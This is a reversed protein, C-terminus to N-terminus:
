PSQLQSSGRAITELTIALPDDRHRDRWSVLDPSLEFPGTWFLWGWWTTPHILKIGNARLRWFEAAISDPADPWDIKPWREVLERERGSSLPQLASGNVQLRALREALHASKPVARGGIRLRDAGLTALSSGDPGIRFGLVPGDHARVRSLEILTASNWFSIDGSAEAIGIVSGDPTVGIGSAQFSVPVSGHLDGSSGAEPALEISRLQAAGAVYLRKGDVSFAVHQPFGKLYDPLTRVKGSDPDVIAVSGEDDSLAIERRSATIALSAVAHQQWTALPVARDASVDHRFVLTGGGPLADSPAVAVAYTLQKGATDYLMPGLVVANPAAVATERVLAGTSTDCIVVRLSTLAAGESSVVAALLAMSQGDPAVAAGGIVAMGPSGPRREVIVNARNGEERAARLVQVPQRLRRGESIPNWAQGNVCALRRPAFDGELSMTPGEQRLLALRGDSAFDMAVFPLSERHRESIAWVRVAGFLWRGAPAANGIPIGAGAALRRGDPAFAIRLVGAQVGTEGVRPRAIVQRSVSETLAVTGDYAGSALLVGDRSWEVSAVASTHPRLQVQPQAEEGVRWLYVTGDFSGFALVKGTPDFSPRFTNYPYTGQPRALRYVKGSDPDDVEWTRIEGNISTAAALRGDWSLAVGAAGPGQWSDGAVSVARPKLALQDFMRVGRDTGVIMRHAARDLALSLFHPEGDAPVLRWAEVGVANPLPVSLIESAGTPQWIGNWAADAPARRLVLLRTGDETAALDVVPLNAPPVILRESADDGDIIVVSGDFRGVAIAGTGPLFTFAWAGSPGSPAITRRFTTSPKTTALVQATVQPTVAVRRAEALLRASGVEDGAARQSAAALAHANALEVKASALGERASSAARAASVNGDVALAALVTMGFFLTVAVTGGTLLLRNRRRQEERYILHLLNDPVDYLAALLKVVARDLADTLGLARLRTFTRLDIWDWASNGNLLGPFRDDPAGPGLVVDIPRTPSRPDSGALFHQIEAELWNSRANGKSDLVSEFAAPTSLVVLRRARDLAPYVKKSLFDPSPKEFATDLFIRPRREHMQRSAISLQSVVEPVLVARRLRDRLWMAIFRGDRRRYSIFLDYEETSSGEPALISGIADKSDVIPAAHM